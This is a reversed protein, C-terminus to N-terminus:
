GAATNDGILIINADPCSDDIARMCSQMYHISREDALDYVFCIRKARKMAAPLSFGEDHDVNWVFFEVNDMDCIVRNPYDDEPRKSPDDQFAKFLANRGRESGMILIKNKLKDPVIIGKIM